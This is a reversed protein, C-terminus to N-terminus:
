NPLQSLASIQEGAQLTKVKDLTAGGAERGKQPEVEM